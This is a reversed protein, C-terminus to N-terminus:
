NDIPCSYFMLNLMIKHYRSRNLLKTSKAAAENVNSLDVVCSYYHDNIFYLASYMQLCVAAVSRILLFVSKNLVLSYCQSTIVKDMNAIDAWCADTFKKSCYSADTSAIFDEIAYKSSIRSDKLSLILAPLAMDDM